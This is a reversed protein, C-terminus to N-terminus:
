EIRKEEVSSITGGFIYKRGNEVTVEFQSIRVRGDVTTLSSRVRVNQRPYIRAVGNKDFVFRMSRGDINISFEDPSTDYTNKQSRTSWDTFDMDKFYSTQTATKWFGVDALEDPLGNLDRVVYGGINLTWKLGAPGSVEDTRIGSADYSLSVPVNTERGELTMLPLSVEPLGTYYNIPTNGFTGLKSQEPTKPILNSYYESNIPKTQSLSESLQFFIIIFLFKYRM